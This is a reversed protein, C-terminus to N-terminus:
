YQYAVSGHRTCGIYLYMRQTPVHIGHGIWSDDRTKVRVQEQHCVGDVAGPVM